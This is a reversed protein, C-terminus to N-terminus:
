RGPTQVQPAPISGGNLEADSFTPEKPAAADDATRQPTTASEPAAASDEGGSSSAVDDPASNPVSPAAVFDTPKNDELAATATGTVAGTEVDIAAVDGPMVMGMGAAQAALNQPAALHEAQQTLRENAQTLTTHEARLTVLEYQRNAVTINVALVVGLAAVLLVACLAIFGRGTKPLPAPVVSLPTRRRTMSASEAPEAPRWPAAAGLQRATAGSTLPSQQMATRHPQATM